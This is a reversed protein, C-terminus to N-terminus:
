GARAKPATTVAVFCGLNIVSNSGGWYSHTGAAGVQRAEDGPYGQPSSSGGSSTPTDREASARSCDYTARIYSGCNTHGCADRAVEKLTTPFTVRRRIRHFLTGCGSCAM